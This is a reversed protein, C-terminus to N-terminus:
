KPPGRVEWIGHDPDSWMGAIREVLHRLLRWLDVSVVGGNRDLLDAVSLIDGYMDHQAQTHAANGVRVPASRRYGELSPITREPPPPCGDVAYLVKIREQEQELVGLLWYVFDTAEETFGVRFLSRVALATDRVWTFRYDWNRAGGIEEPLSTTAAAVMAGTPRYFLLKLALASRQIEAQWRGRYPSRSSWTRWYEITQQRRLDSRFAGIPTVVEAGPSIM